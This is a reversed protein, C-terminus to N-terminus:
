ICYYITTIFSLYYNLLYTVQGITMLNEIVWESIKSKIIIIICIDNKILKDECDRLFQLRMNSSSTSPVCTM